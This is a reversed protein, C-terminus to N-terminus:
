AIAIPEEESSEAGQLNRTGRIDKRKRFTGRTGNSGGESTEESGLQAGARV